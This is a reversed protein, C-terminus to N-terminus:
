SSDGGLLLLSCLFCCLCWFDDDNDDDDDVGLFLVVVYACNSACLEAARAMAVESCNGSLLLLITSSDEQAVAEM